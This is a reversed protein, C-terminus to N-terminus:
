KPVFGVAGKQQFFGPKAFLFCGDLSGFCTEEPKGLLCPRKQNTEVHSAASAAGNLQSDPRDGDTTLHFFGNTQDEIGGLGKIHTHIQSRRHTQQIKKKLCSLSTLTNPNSPHQHKSQVNRKPNQASMHIQSQLRSTSNLSTRDLRLSTVSLQVFKDLVWRQVLLM